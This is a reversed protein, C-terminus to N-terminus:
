PARCLVNAVGYCEALGNYRAGSAAIGAERAMAARLALFTYQVPDSADGITLGAGSIADIEGEAASLAKLTAYQLPDSADGITLGAGSIADTEGEAASLAKLTTYQVPDSAEACVACPVDGALAAAAVDTVPLASTALVSLVLGAALIAVASWYHRFGVGIPHKLEIRDSNSVSRRTNM